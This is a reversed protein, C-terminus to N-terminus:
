PKVKENIFLFPNTESFQARIKVTCPYATSAASDGNTCSINVIDAKDFIKNKPDELNIQVQTATNYDKASASIDIGGETKPIELSTLVAKPPISVAVQKILSSFLIQKSLVKVLLKLSDSIGQVKTQVNELSQKNLEQQTLNIQRTYNNSSQRIYFMGFLTIVAVGIISAVFILCWHRLVTNRHAYSLDQKTQTPLLNIM